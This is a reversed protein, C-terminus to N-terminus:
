SASRHRNLLTEIAMGIRLLKQDNGNTAALMLGVPAEGEAHCPLSLACGDIFNIVTTNRLVLGNTALFLADDSELPALKPPIVAVTPMLLVDYDDAIADLERNLAAREQMIGIYGAASIDQGRKIRAVIRQDYSAAREPSDINLQHIAYAEAAILGGQRNIEPIRALQPLRVEVVHAGAAALASVASQISRAVESDVGDLVYDQVVGIRLGTLAFPGLVPVDIGAMVADLIACCRVTPGMPGVSDLSQSLPFAGDRPIRSATPKFGVLGCFAAPIRLSGGTDTGVTAVAMGDAVSVAGGSTSGGPIRGAGRDWPNRPTGYHPNLGLGSFAFESMGTKGVIVAGAQRLRSVIVADKMAPSLNRRVVSGALTVEGAVDFLDKISIPLGALPSMQVGSARQLDSSKASALAAERYVKTFARSGEGDQAAIRALAAETLEESTVRGKALRGALDMISDM